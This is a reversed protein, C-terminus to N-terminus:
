STAYRANENYCRYTYSGMKPTGLEHWISMHPGKYETLKFFILNAVFLISCKSWIIFHKFTILFYREKECFQQHSHFSLYYKLVSLFCIEWLNMHLSDFIAFLVNKKILYAM